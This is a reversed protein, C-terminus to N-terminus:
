EDANDGLSARVPQRLREPPKASAEIERWNNEAILRLTGNPLALWVCGGGASLARVSLALVQQYFEETSVSTRALQGIDALVDELEQWVDAGPHPNTKSLPTSM